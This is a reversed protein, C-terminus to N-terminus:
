SKRPPSLFHRNITQLMARQPTAAGPRAEQVRCLLQRLYVKDMGVQRQQEQM